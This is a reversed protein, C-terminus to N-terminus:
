FDQFQVLREPVAFAATDPNNVTNQAQSWSMQSLFQRAVDVTHSVSLTVDQLFKRQTYRLRPFM